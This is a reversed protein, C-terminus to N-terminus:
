VEVVSAAAGMFMESHLRVVFRLPDYLGRVRSVDYLDDPLDSHMEDHTDVGPTNPEVRNKM